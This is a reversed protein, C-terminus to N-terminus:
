GPLVSDRHQADGVSRQQRRLADNKLLELLLEMDGCYLESEMELVSAPM